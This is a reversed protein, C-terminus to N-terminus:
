EVTVQERFKALTAPGIGSVELLEEVTSFSGKKQRYAIIRQALAPGIGHLSELEAQSATNINIEGPTSPAQPNSEILGIQDAPTVQGFGDASTSSIAGQGSASSLATNQASTQGSTHGAARQKTSKKAVTTRSDGQNGSGSAGETLQFPVDIQKGDQLPLALNLQSLDAEPLPVAQRM